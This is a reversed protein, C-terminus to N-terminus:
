LDKQESAYLREWATYQDPWPKLNNLYVNDFLRLVKLVGDTHYITCYAAFAYVSVVRGFNIKMDEFVYQLVANIDVSPNDMVMNYYVPDDKERDRIIKLLKRSITLEKLTYAHVRNGRLCRM